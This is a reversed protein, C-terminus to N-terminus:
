IDCNPTCGTLAVLLSFRSQVKPHFAFQEPQSHLRLSAPRASPKTPPTNLSSTVAAPVVLGGAVAHGGIAAILPKKPILRSPGMPGSGQGVPVTEPMKAAAAAVLTLLCRHRGDATVALLLPGRVATSRAQQKPSVVDTPAYVAASIRKLTCTARRRDFPCCM